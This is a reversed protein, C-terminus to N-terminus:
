PTTSEVSPQPLTEIIHEFRQLAVEYLHNYVPMVAPSEGHVRYRHRGDSGRLDIRFTIEDAKDGAAPEGTRWGHENILAILQEVQEESMAGTWTVRRARADPGGSYGLTGDPFFRYLARRGDDREILLDLAIGYAREDGPSSKAPWACGATALLAIVIMSAAIVRVTRMLLDRNSDASVCTGGWRQDHANMLPEMREGIGHTHILVSIM